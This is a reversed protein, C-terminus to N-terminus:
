PLIASAVARLVDAIFLRVLYEGAPLPDHCMDANAAVLMSVVGSDPVVGTATLGPVVQGNLVWEGRWTLGAGGGVVFRSELLRVGAPLMAPSPLPASLPAACSVAYSWSPAVDLARSIVPLYVRNTQAAQVPPLATWPGWAVLGALLALVVRSNILSRAM